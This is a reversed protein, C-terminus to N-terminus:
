VNKDLRKEDKIYNELINKFHESSYTLVHTGGRELIDRKEVIQAQERELYAPLLGEKYFREELKLWKQYEEEDRKVEIWLCIGYIFAVLDTTGKEELKMKYTKTVRTKKSTYAKTMAGSHLKKCIWGKAKIYNKISDEVHKEKM